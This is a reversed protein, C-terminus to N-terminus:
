LLYDLQRDTEKRDYDQGFESKFHRHVAPRGGYQHYLLHMITIQGNRSVSSAGKHLLKEARTRSRKKKERRPGNKGTSGIDWGLDTLLQHADKMNDMVVDGDEVLTEYIEQSTKASTKMIRSSRSAGGIITIDHWKEFEKKEFKQYDRKSLKIPCRQNVKKYKRGGGVAVKVHCPIFIEGDKCFPSKEITGTVLSRKGNGTNAYPSFHHHNYLKWDYQSFKGEPKPQGPEYKHPLSKTSTWTDWEGVLEGFTDPKETETTAVETEIRKDEWEPEIPIKQFGTKDHETGPLRFQNKRKYIQWDLGGPHDRVLERLRELESDRVYLPCHCHISRNGSHFWQCDHVSVPLHEEIFDTIWEIQVQWSDGEDSEINIPYLVRNEGECGDQLDKVIHDGGKRYGATEERFWSLSNTEEDTLLYVGSAFGADEPIPETIPYLSYWQRVGKKGEEISGYRVYKNFSEFSKNDHSELPSASAM